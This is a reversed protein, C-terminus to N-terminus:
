IKAPKILWELHLVKRSDQLGPKVNARKNFIRGKKPLVKKM